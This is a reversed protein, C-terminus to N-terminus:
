KKRQATDSRVGDAWGSMPAAKRARCTAGAVADYVVANGKSDCVFEVANERRIGLRGGEAAVDINAGLFLFEWGKEQHSEILRKVQPYNFHHSSNEYGDTIIVFVVKDAKHGQPMYREIRDIHEITSGVTDLLATCGGAMYDSRTM